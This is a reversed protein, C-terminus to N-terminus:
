RSLRWLRILGIASGCDVWSTEAWRIRHVSSFAVSSPTVFRLGPTAFWQSWNEIRIAVAKVLWLPGTPVAVFVLWIGESFTDVIVDHFWRWFTLQPCPFCCILAITQPINEPSGGRHSM